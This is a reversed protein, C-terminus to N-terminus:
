TTTIVVTKETTGRAPLPRIGYGNSNSTVKMTSQQRYWCLYWCAPHQALGHVSNPAEVAGGLDPASNFLLGANPCRSNESSALMSKSWTASFRPM